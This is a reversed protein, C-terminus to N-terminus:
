IDLMNHSNTRFNLKVHQKTM